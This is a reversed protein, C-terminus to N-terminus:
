YIDDCAQYKSNSKIQQKYNSLANARFQQSKRYTKINKLFMMVICLLLLGLGVNNDKLWFFASDTPALNISIGTFLIFLVSKKMTLMKGCVHSLM